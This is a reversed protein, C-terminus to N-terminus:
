SFSKNTREHKIIKILNTEDNVHILINDFQIVYLKEGNDQNLLKQSPFVVNNFFHSDEKYCFSDIEMDRMEKLFRKFRNIARSNEISDAEEEQKKNFHYNNKCPNGCFKRKSSKCDIIIKNCRPNKCHLIPRRM